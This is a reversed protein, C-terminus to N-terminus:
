GADKSQNNAVRGRMSPHVELELLSTQFLSAAHAVKLVAAAANAPM